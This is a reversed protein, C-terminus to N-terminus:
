PAHKYVFDYKELLAENDVEVQVRTQAPDVRAVKQGDKFRFLTASLDLQLTKQTEAAAGTAFTLDQTDLLMTLPDLRLKRPM